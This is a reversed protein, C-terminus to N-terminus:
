KLRSNAAMDVVFIPISVLGHQDGSILQLRRTSQRPDILLLYRVRSPDIHVRDSVHFRPAGPRDGAACHRDAFHLECELGYSNFKEIVGLRAHPESLALSSSV